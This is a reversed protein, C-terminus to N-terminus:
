SAVGGRGELAGTVAPVYPWPEHSPEDFVPPEDADDEIERIALEWSTRFTRVVLVHPGFERRLAVSGCGDTTVELLEADLALEVLTDHDTVGTEVRFGGFEAPHSLAGLFRTLELLGDVHSTDTDITM